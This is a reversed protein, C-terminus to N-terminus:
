SETGEQFAREVAEDIRANDASKRPRSMADDGEWVFGFTMYWARLEAADPTRLRDEGFPHVTLVLELDLFDAYEIAKKMVHTALGRRKYKSSVLEISGYKDGCWVDMVVSAGKHEFTVTHGM